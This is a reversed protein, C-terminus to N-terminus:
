PWFLICVPAGVEALPGTPTLAGTSQDVAFVSLTGSGQNGAILWRGAPDLTFHRPTKGRTSEHEVPTLSGNAAIAFVGISDHGRNSGYLFRGNPHVQLEATSSNGSFGEPLTSQSGLMTLAGKASDWALTTLTSAMENITFVFRGNPHFALHRPGSGPVLSVSPPDNPTVKGTAADFRYVLVQDLGLDVELLYRNAPDFVVQHAHPGQQRQPNPGSGTGGLLVTLASLKGSAGIPLVAVNGGSYNAVAAVKGTRDCQVHCPDSGGTSEIGLPTLAGTRSDVAYSTVSGAKAGHYDGIENVAYLVRGDPSAALFSPSRTEAKLGLPTLAGTKEDFRFAYIGKSNTTGGTYTGIFMLRGAAPAQGAQLGARLAAIGLATTTIFDRRTPSTLIRM